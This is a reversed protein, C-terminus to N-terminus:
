VSGSRQAAPDYRCYATVKFNQSYGGYQAFPLGTWLLSVTKGTNLALPSQGINYTYGVGAVTTEIDWQSQGVRVSFPYAVASVPTTSPLLSACVLCGYTFDTATVKFVGSSGAPGANNTAGCAAWFNGASPANAGSATDNTWGQPNSVTFAIDDPLLAFGVQLDNATGTAPGVTAFNEVNATDQLLVSTVDVAASATSTTLTGSLEWAQAVTLAAGNGGSSTVVIATATEATDPDVWLACSPVPKSAVGAQTLVAAFNDAAGGLTIGSIAPNTNAALAGWAVVVTNGAKTAQPLTLNLTTLSTGHVLGTTQVVAPLATSAPLTSTDIVLRYIEFFPVNIVNTDFVSTLNGTNLGTYDQGTTFQFTGLDVYTM